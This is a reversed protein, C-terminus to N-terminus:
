MAERAMLRAEIAVATSGMLKDLKMGYYRARIRLKRLRSFERKRRRQVDFREWRDCVQCVACERWSIASRSQLM